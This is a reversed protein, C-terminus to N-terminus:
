PELPPPPPPRPPPTLRIGRDYWSTVSPTAPPPAPPPNAATVLPAPAQEKAAERTLIAPRLHVFVGGRNGRTIRMEDSLYTVDLWGEGKLPLPIRLPKWGFRRGLKIQISAACITSNLRGAVAPEPTYEVDAVVRVRNRTLQVINRFVNREKEDTMFNSFQPLPALAKQSRTAKKTNLQWVLQWDGWIKAEDFAIPAAESEARRVLGAVREDSLPEGSLYERLQLYRSLLADPPPSAKMTPTTTRPVAARPTTVGLALCALHMM